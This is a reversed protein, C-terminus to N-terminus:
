EEGLSKEIRDIINILMHDYENEPFEPLFYLMRLENAISRWEDPTFNIAVTGDWWPPSMDIPQPMEQNGKKVSVPFDMGDGAIKVNTM